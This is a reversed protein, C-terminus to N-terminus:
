AYFFQYISLLTISLNIVILAMVVTALTSNKCNFLKRIPALFLLLPLMPIFYRGQLGFIFPMGAPTWTFWFIFSVFLFSGVLAGLALLKIKRDRELKKTMTVSFGAVLSSFVTISLWSPPYIELSGFVGTFTNFIFSPQYNDPFYYGNQYTVGPQAVFTTIFMEPLTLPHKAISGVIERKGELRAHNVTEFYNTVASSQGIGFIVLYWATFIALAIAIIAAISAFYKKISPFLQKPLAFLMALVLTYGPKSAIIIALVLLGAFLTLREYKKELIAKYDKRAYLILSIFLLISSLLLGDPSVAVTQHLSMPLLAIAVAFWKGFPLLRIALYTLTVCILFGVIRLVMFYIYANNTFLRALVSAFLYNVYAIPTYTGSGAFTQFSSGGVKTVKGADYSNGIRKFFGKEHDQFSNINVRQIANPIQHGYGETGKEVFLDGTTLQYIRFVHSAEDTGRFPPLAFCLFLGAILVIVLYFHQPRSFWLWFRTLLGM